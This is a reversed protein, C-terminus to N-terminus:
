WPKANMEAEFHVDRSVRFDNLKMWYSLMLDFRALTVSGM